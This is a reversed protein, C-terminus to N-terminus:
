GRQPRWTTTRDFLPAFLAGLLVAFVVGDPQAPDFLRIVVILAVIGIGHLCRALPHDPASDTTAALFIVGLAFSGTVFHEWWLPAEAFGALLSVAAAGLLAAIITQWALHRRWLLWAAGPLCALALTPDVPASLIARAEYGAEPFSFIAFALALLPPPLLADGGFVERAFIWGFSTALLASGIGVSEPLLVAFVLAFSFQAPVPVLWLRGGAFVARWLQSVVLALFLLGIRAPAADIGDDFLRVLLPPLLALTLDRHNFDPQNLEDM